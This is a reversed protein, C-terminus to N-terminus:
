DTFVGFVTRLDWFGLPRKRISCYSHLDTMVAGLSWVRSMLLIFLFRSCHRHNEINLRCFLRDWPWLHFSQLDCFIWVTTGDELSKFWSSFKVLIHGYSKIWLTFIFVWPWASFNWREGLTTRTQYLCVFLWTWSLTLLRSPTLM